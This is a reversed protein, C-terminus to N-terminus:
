KHQLYFCLNRFFTNLTCNLIDFSCVNHIPSTLCNKKSMQIFSPATFIREPVQNEVSCRDRLSGYFGHVPMGAVCVGLFTRDADDYLSDV